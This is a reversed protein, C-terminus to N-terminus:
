DTDLSQYPFFTGHLMAGSGEDSILLWSAKSGDALSMQEKADMAWVEHAAQGRVISLRPRKDKEERDVLGARHFWRRLTRVSPLAEEAFLEALEVWILGSGWTPHARKFEIAKEYIAPDKRVGTHVCADYAPELQGTRDYHRWVNRVTHYSMSMDRAIRAFSTGEQRRRVIEERKKIATAAPM